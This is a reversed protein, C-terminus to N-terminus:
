VELAMGSNEVGSSCVCGCVEDTM